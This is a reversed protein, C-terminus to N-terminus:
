KHYNRFASIIIGFVDQLYRNPPTHKFDSFGAYFVNVSPNM